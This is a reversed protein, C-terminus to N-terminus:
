SRPRDARRWDNSGCGRCARRCDKGCRDPRRSAAPSRGARRRRMSARLARAWRVIAASRNKLAGNAVSEPRGVFHQDLDANRPQRGAVAIREHLDALAEAIARQDGGAAKQGDAVAVAAVHADAKAIGDCLTKRMAPRRLRARLCAPKPRRQDVRRGLRDGLRRARRGGVQVGVLGIPAVHGRGQGSAHQARGARAGAAVVVIGPTILCHCSASTFTVTFPRANRAAPRAAAEETRSEDAVFDAQGARMDAALVAHAAGARDQEVTERRAGAARQRHLGVAAADLGDLREAAGFLRCGAAARREPLLVAQLATVARRSHQHQHGLQQAFIGIGVAFGDPETEVVIDAAAGPILVDDARDLARDLQHARFPPASIASAPLIREGGAPRWFSRGSWCSLTMPVRMSRLSSGRKRAPRPRKMSSMASGFMACAATSRLGCACARMLDISLRAASASGPTAATIVPSSAACSVPGSGHKALGGTSCRQM